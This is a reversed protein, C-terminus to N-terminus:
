KAVSLTLPLFALIFVFYLSGRLVRRKELRNLPESKDDESRGPIYTNNQGIQVRGPIQTPEFDKDEFRDAMRLGAQERAAPKPPPAKSPMPVEVREKCTPCCITVGGM